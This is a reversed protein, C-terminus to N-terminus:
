ETVVSSTAGTTFNSDAEDLVEQFVVLVAFYFFVEDKFKAAVQRKPTKISIISAADSGQNQILKQKARLQLCLDLRSKFNRCLM